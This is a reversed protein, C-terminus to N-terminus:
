RRWVAVSTANLLLTFTFTVFGAIMLFLGTVGLYNVTAEPVLRFDHRVYYVVLSGALGLGCAFVAAALGVTRTYPFRAFWRRTVDGSYDFFVQALIGLYVCQLGLTALTLGFLMWLLSFTIPGVTVPGFTLPLMLACGGVALLIGPRLLFFDAGYVFMARLNIWAAAWPSFWGSRKHHSLRGERDKLFRIPVEETRLKMHVSKLVMESAYEWSQSRLGMRELGDRTLGRMGCHIDSFRSSFIVNLIWTTVPTGLYRHLPPMSGPEIYGRFRSGMIFEAGDRFKKVFPEIERFDYTCDCDGMLVWRGRIFPVSDIYARGLGRKPAALVRAGKALAIERTRDTSSDVILIEGAVRAKALGEKCWDIFDGITLEENLAPIVISLEPDQVDSQPVHLELEPDVRPIAGSITRVQAATM